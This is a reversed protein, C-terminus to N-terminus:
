ACSCETFRAFAQAALERWRAGTMEWAMCEYWLKGEHPPQSFDYAPALRLRESVVPFNELVLRQSRYEDMMKRKRERGDDSLPFTIESSTEANLFEGTVCGGNHAHYSTMEAMLPAETSLVAVAIKAVLAACDHDPHGGEYPHTILLDLPFERLFEALRSALSHTEFISEQDVGGLWFIQGGAIGAHALVTVAEQQRIAAYEERSIRMDPPWLKTDHPAGDTLYIIRTAPFRALLASAGITEDDPHAALIAIRLSVDPPDAVLRALLERKNCSDAQWKM